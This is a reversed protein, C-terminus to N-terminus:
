LLLRYDQMTTIGLVHGAEASQAIAIAVDARSTGQALLASWAEVAGAEPARELAHAYLLAVFYADTDTQHAAKFEASQLFQDAVSRSDHQAIARTWAAFGIPDPARGLVTEYLLYVRDADASKDMASFASYNSLALDRVQGNENLAFCITGDDAIRSVATADSADPLLKFFSGGSMLFSEMAGSVPDIYEGVVQGKNNISNFVTESSGPFDFLQVKGETILLGSAHGDRMTAFGAIDGKENIARAYVSEIDADIKIEHLADPLGTFAHTKGDSFLADIIIEGRNNIDHVRAEVAGQIIIPLVSHTDGLIPSWNGDERLLSAVFQGRDNFDEIIFSRDNLATPLTLGMAFGRFAGAQTQYNGFIQGHDNEGVIRFYSGGADSPINVQFKLDEIVGDIFAFDRPAAPTALSAPAGGNWKLLPRSWQFGLEGSWSPILSSATEVAKLLTKAGPIADLWEQVSNPLETIKSLNVFAKANSEAVLDASLQTNFLQFPDAIKTIIEKARIKGSPDQAILDIRAQAEFSADARLEAGFAPIGAVAKGQAGAFLDAILEPRNVGNHLTSIYLGDFLDIPSNTTGAAIAGRTDIGLATNAELAFAAYLEIQAKIPLLSMVKSFGPVVLDTLALLDVPLSLPAPKFNFQDQYTLLDTERGFLMSILSKPDTLVPLQFGLDYMDVLLRDIDKYGIVPVEPGNQGALTGGVAQANVSQLSTGSTIRADGLAIEYSLGSANVEAISKALAQVKLLKTFFVDAMDLASIFSAVANKYSDLSNKVENFGPELASWTSLKSAAQYLEDFRNLVQQTFGAAGRVAELISVSQDANKDFIKVVNDVINKAVTAAVISQIAEFPKIWIEKKDIALPVSTVLPKNLFEGIRYFPTLIKDATAVAPAALGTLASGVDIKMNDFNFQLPDVKLFSGNPDPSKAFSLQLPASFDTKFNPPVSEFIANQDKPANMETKLAFSLLGSGSGTAGILDGLKLQGALVDDIIKKTLKGGTVVPVIEVSASASTAKGTSSPSVSAQNVASVTISGFRGQAELADLAFDANTELKSQKTDIFFTGDTSRGATLLLHYNFRADATGKLTLGLAQSGLGAGLPLDELALTGFLELRADGTQPNWVFQNQTPGATSASGLAMQSPTLFTTFQGQLTTALSRINPGLAGVLPLSQLGLGGIVLDIAGNLFTGIDGTAPPLANTENPM